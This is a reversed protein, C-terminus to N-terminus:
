RLTSVKEDQAWNELQSYDFYNRGVFGGTMGQMMANVNMGAPGGLGMMGASTSAGISRTDDDGGRMGDHDHDHDHDRRLLDDSHHNSRHGSSHSGGRVREAYDHVTVENDSEM